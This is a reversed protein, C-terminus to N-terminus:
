RQSYDFTRKSMQETEQASDSITAGRFSNKLSLKIKYVNKSYANVTIKDM